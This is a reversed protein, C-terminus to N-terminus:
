SDSVQEVASVKWTAVRNYLTRELVIKLVFRKAQGGEEYEASYRQDVILGAAGQQQRQATRLYQYQARNGLESMRAVAPRGMFEKLKEQPSANLMSIPDGPDVPAGEHSHGTHPDVSTGKAAYFEDLSVGPAVRSSDDLTLQHALRIDGTRFYELWREACRRAEGDLHHQRYFMASASCTGFVLSLFLGWKMATRGTQTFEAAALQRAAMLGAFLGVLPFALLAPHLLSAASLGGFVAAIIAWRNVPRYVTFEESETDSFRTSDTVANM